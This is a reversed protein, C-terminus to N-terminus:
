ALRWMRWRFVVSTCLRSPRQQPHTAHWPHSRLTATPWTLFTDRERDHHVVRRPIVCVMPAKEVVHLRLQALPDYRFEVIERCPQDSKLYAVEHRALAARAGLRPSRCSAFRTQRYKLFTGTAHSPNVKQSGLGPASGRQASASQAESLTELRDVLPPRLFLANPSHVSHTRCYRRARARQSNLTLRLVEPGAAAGHACRRTSARPTSAGRTPLRSRQCPLQCVATRGASTHALGNGSIRSALQTKESAYERTVTFVSHPGIRLIPRQRLQFEAM